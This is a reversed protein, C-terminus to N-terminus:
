AAVSFRNDARKALEVRVRAIRTELDGELLVYEVGGAQLQQLYWAHQRLRFDEGVRTGDQEFPIDPACLFLLDYARAAARQLPEPATGFMWGSYGLTVLPTTDCFLWRHAHPAAQDEHQPQTAAIRLLDQARLEGGQQEWLTRGFEPVWATGLREALVQALTTKGSSEGGIFAVRQVYAAYVDASLSHRHVHPDARLQTGCAQGIDLTRELREHRVPAGFHAALAQAFGDGYDEGTFVAQVPGGFLTMCLWATFARQVQEDDSDQPLERVPVGQQECMAALRADDLVVITAQPFRLRLWRERREASYGAFGPQSWGIVLLQACRTSAFEILREHGLHLPCFKGVVLGRAAYEPLLM